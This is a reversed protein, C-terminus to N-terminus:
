IGNEPPDQKNQAKKNKIAFAAVCVACVCIGIVSVTAASNNEESSDTDAGNDTDTDIIVDAAVTVDDSQDSMGATIQETHGATDASTDAAADTDSDTDPEPEPEPDSYARLNEFVDGSGSDEGVTSRYLGFRLPSHEEIDAACRVPDKSSGFVWDYFVTDLQSIHCKFADRSREFPSVGGLEEMPTDFFDFLIANEAWLHFYAKPVDYAGYKQASEPYNEANGSLELARSLTQALLMHQGHGYEGEFDHTFMVKPRTRRLLEVCFAELEQQTHGDGTLNSEAWDITTSYRDTFGGVIPYTRVGATWLGNLREHRREHTSYHETMYAVTVIRGKATFYPLIGAFFLHEDDSHTSVLLIDTYEPTPEWSQVWSPREGPGLVYIEAIRVGAEGFGLTVSRCEQGFTETTDVYQHIYPMSVSMSRGDADSINWSGPEIDFLIYIGGIPEASTLEVTASGEVSESYYREEGDWMPWNKDFGRGTCKVSRSIDQAQTPATDSIGLSGETDAGTQGEAHMMVSLAPMCLVSLTMIFAFIRRM